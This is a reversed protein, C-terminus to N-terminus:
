KHIVRCCVMAGICTSNAAIFFTSFITFLGHSCNDRNLYYLSGPFLVCVEIQPPGSLFCLFMFIFSDAMILYTGVIRTSRHCYKGRHSHYVPNYRRVCRSLLYAASIVKFIWYKMCDSILTISTRTYASCFSLHNTSQTVSPSFDVLM